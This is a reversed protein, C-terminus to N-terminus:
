EAVVLRNRGAQKAQYLAHDARNLWTAASDGRIFGSVGISVTVRIEQGNHIVTLSRVAELLREGLMRGADTATDPVIVVFEEGGYRAVFDTKRPFTRACCNAIQKLVADGAAHGFTDNISKFHDVDIMLLCATQGSLLSIDVTRTLQEDLAKRNYLETLPDLAMERRAEELEQRLRRLRNGLEELQTQQRQKRETVSREIVAIAAIAARKLHETSNSVIAARLQDLQRTVQDDVAQDEIFARSLHHVFSWIVERLDHLTKTVYKSESRRHQAMFLRVGAWDRGGQAVSREEDGPRPTGVLIHRAWKECMENVTKADIKELDFAYKGVARLLAAVTDVARELEAMNAQPDDDVQSMEEAVTATEETLQVGVPVEEKAARRRQWWM